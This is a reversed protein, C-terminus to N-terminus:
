KESNDMRSQGKQKRKGKNQETSSLQLIGQMWERTTAHPRPNTKFIIKHIRIDCFISTTGDLLLHNCYWEYLLYRTM